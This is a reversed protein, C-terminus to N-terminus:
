IAMHTAKRVTHEHIVIGNAILKVMCIKATKRIATSESQFLLRHEIKNYRASPKQPTGTKEPNIAPGITNTCIVPPYRIPNKIEAGIMLM